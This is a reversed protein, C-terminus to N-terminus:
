RALPSSARPHHADRQALDPRPADDALWIRVVAYDDNAKDLLRTASIFPTQSRGIAETIRNGCSRGVKFRGERKRFIRGCGILGIQVRGALM